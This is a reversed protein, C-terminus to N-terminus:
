GRDVEPVGANRCPMPCESHCHLGSAECRPQEAGMVGATCGFCRKDPLVKACEGKGKPCATVGRAAILRVALHPTMAAIFRRAKRSSRIPEGSEILDGDFWESEPGCEEAAEQALRLLPNLDTM